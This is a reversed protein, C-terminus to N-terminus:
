PSERNNKSSERAERFIADTFGGGTADGDRYSWDSIEEAAVSVREGQTPHSLAYPRSVLRGKVKEFDVEEVDVWMHEIHSGDSFPTKIRFDADKSCRRDFAAVFEPWHSRARAIADAMRTDDSRVGSVTSFTATNMAERGRGERLMAILTGDLPNIRQTHFCFIGLSTEDCLEVVIRGMLDTADKREKGPPAAWCDLLIAAEHRAVIARLTFDPHPKRDRPIYPGSRTELTFEYGAVRFRYLDPRERWVGAEPFPRGIATAVARAIEIQSLTRRVTDLSVLAVPDLDPERRFPRKLRDFM